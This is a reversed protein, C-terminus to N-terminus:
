KRWWDKINTIEPDNITITIVSNEDMEYLLGKQKAYKFDERRYIDFYLNTNLKYTRIAKVGPETTSGYVVIQSVQYTRFLPDINYQVEGGEFIIRFQMYSVKIDILENGLAKVYKNIDPFDEPLDTLPDIFLTDEIEEPEVVDQLLEEYFLQKDGSDIKESRTEDQMLKGFLSGQVLEKEM